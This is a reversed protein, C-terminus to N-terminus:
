SRRNQAAGGPPVTRPCGHLAGTYMGVAFMSTRSQFECRRAQSKRTRRRFDCRSVRFARKLHLTELIKEIFDRKGNTQPIRAPHYARSEELPAVRSKGEAVM